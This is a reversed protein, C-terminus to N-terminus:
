LVNSTVEECVCDIKYIGKCCGCEYERPKMSVNRGRWEQGEGERGDGRGRGWDVKLINIVTGKIQALVFKLFNNSIGLYGYCLSSVFFVQCCFIHM